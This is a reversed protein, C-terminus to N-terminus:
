AKSNGITHNLREVSARLDTVNEDSLHLFKRHAILGRRISRVLPLKRADVACQAYDFYASVSRPYFHVWDRYGSLLRPWDYHVEGEEAKGIYGNMVYAYLAQGLHSRTREVAQNLFAEVEGPKGRWRPLLYDAYNSTASWSHIADISWARVLWAHVTRKPLELGRGVVILWAYVEADPELHTAEELVVRAHNLDIHFEKLGEPTVNGYAGRAQWAKRIWMNGLCVRAAVSRPEKQRWGELDTLAKVLGPSVVYQYLHHYFSNLVLTGSRGLLKRRRLTDAAVDLAQWQKANSLWQVPTAMLGDEAEYELDPLFSLILQLNHTHQPTLSLKRIPLQGVRKNRDYPSSGVKLNTPHPLATEVRQYRYYDPPGQGM